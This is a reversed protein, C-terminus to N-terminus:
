KDVMIKVDKILSIGIRDQTGRLRFILHGDGLM